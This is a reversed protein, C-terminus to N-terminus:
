CRQGSGPQRGTSAAVRQVAQVRMCVCAHMSTARVQAAHDPHMPKINLHSVHASAGIARWGDHAFLRLRRQVIARRLPYVQSRASQPILPRPPWRPQAHVPRWAPLGNGLGHQWALRRLVATAALQRKRATLTKRGSHFGLSEQSWCPATHQQTESM